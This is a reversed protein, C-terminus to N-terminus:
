LAGAKGPPDNREKSCCAAFFAPFAGPKGRPITMNRALSPRSLLTGIRTYPTSRLIGRPLRPCCYEVSGLVPFMFVLPVVNATTTASTSASPSPGSLHLSALVNHSLPGTIYQDSKQHNVNPLSELTGYVTKDKALQDSTMLWYYYDDQIPTGGVCYTTQGPSAGMCSPDVPIWLPENEQNIETINTLASQM